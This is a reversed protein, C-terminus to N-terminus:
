NGMDLAIKWDGEAQKRWISTYKGTKTTVNGNEDKTTRVYKGYTYGMSGDASAEAFVPEWRLTYNGSDFAGQMADFIAGRGVIPDAGAVLMTGDEAFYSAWGEAGREATALDFERDLRMLIEKVDENQM